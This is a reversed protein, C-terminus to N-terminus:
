VRLKTKTSFPNAQAMGGHNRGLKSEPSSALILAVQRREPLSCDIENLEDMIELIADLHRRMDGDKELHIEYLKKMLMVEAGVTSRQHHSRLADWAPKGTTFQKIHILQTRDCRM